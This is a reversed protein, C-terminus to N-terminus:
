FSRVSQFAVSLTLPKRGLAIADLDQVIDIVQVNSFEPYTSSVVEVKFVATRIFGKFLRNPRM